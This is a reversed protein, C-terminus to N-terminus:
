WLFNQLSHGSIVLSDMWFNHSKGRINKTTINCHFVPGFPGGRDQSPDFSHNIIIAPVM